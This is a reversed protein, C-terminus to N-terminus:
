ETREGGGDIGVRMRMMVTEWGGSMKLVRERWCMRSLRSKHLLWEKAEM